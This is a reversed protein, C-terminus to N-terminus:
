RQRELKRMTVVPIEIVPEIDSISKVVRACGGIRFRTADIESVQIWRIGDDFRVVFVGVTGMGVAGLSLALWKRVNLFVTLYKNSLHPRSKLELLGVLRGDREAYFDIPALKGFSRVSCKWAAAISQAVENENKADNATRFIPTGDVHTQTEREYYTTEM